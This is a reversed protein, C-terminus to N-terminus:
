ILNKIDNTNGKLESHCRKEPPMIGSEQLQLITDKLVDRIKEIRRNQIRDVQPIRGHRGLDTENYNITKENVNSKDNSKDNSKCKETNNVFDEKLFNPTTFFLVGAVIVVLLIGIVLFIQNMM